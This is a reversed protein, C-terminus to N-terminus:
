PLLCHQLQPMLASAFRLGELAAPPTDPVDIRVISGATHGGWFADRALLVKGLYEDALIRQRSQYWYYILRRQGSNQVSYKNIEISRGQFLVSATEHRWIEWGSGPLCHKPSHMSEGARQQAYYAVFLGLALREKRYERSLVSTPQLRELVRATLPRDASYVWGAIGPEITDLPRVLCEPTDRSTWLSAAFTVLLLSVSVPFRLAAINM